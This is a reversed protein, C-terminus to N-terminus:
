PQRYQGERACLQHDAQTRNHHLGFGELDNIYEAFKKNPQSGAVDVAVHMLIKRCMIESATYAAVAHATRAERWAREVDAPLGTVTGGSPAPPYVGGDATRVSGDGCNPCLLWLVSTPPRASAGGAMVEAAVAHSCHACTISFVM